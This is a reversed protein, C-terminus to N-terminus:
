VHIAESRGAHSGKAKLAELEAELEEDRQMSALKEEVTPTRGFNVLDGQAEMHDIRHEFGEFRAMIDATDVRRVVTETHRRQHARKHRQVLLRERERVTKLKDELQCVDNKSQATLGDVHDLEQQLTEVREAYRRKEALAERALDDRGKNVALQAKSEWDDARRQVESLDRGIKRKAAMLGACSAKVEIIADEMERVMMKVMKEPDEAKDLMSNINAGVIDRMRSFVGM